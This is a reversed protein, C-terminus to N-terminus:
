TKIKSAPCNAPCNAIVPVPSRWIAAPYFPELFIQRSTTTGPFGACDGLFDAAVLLGALFSVFAVTPVPGIQPEDHPHLCAVCGSSPLHVSAMCKFHTTAGVGMWEPGAEALLWRTRVDDVGVLVRPAVNSVDTRVFHRGIPTIPVPSMSAILDVKRETVWDSLLLMNRNRNSDESIDEDFIRGSGTLGPVRSLSYVIANAVAGASVLDFKGLNAALPADEACSALKAHRLPAFGAAFEAAHDSLPLLHRGSIKFSEAAIMGAGIMAGIPWENAAWLESGSRESFTASWNSCGVSLIRKARVDPCDPCDPCDPGFMFAIDAEKAPLGMRIPAGDVMGNAVSLVGEHVTRGTMPPQCGILPADPVQLYVQHGSRACLMAATTLAVQGAGTRIVANSACLVVTTRMLADLVVEDDRIGLDGGLLLITRSLQDATSM